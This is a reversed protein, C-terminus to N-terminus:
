VELFGAIFAFSDFHAECVQLGMMRRRPSVPARSSNWRAAMAWFRLVSALLARWLEQGLMQDSFFFGANMGRM